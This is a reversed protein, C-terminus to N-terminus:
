EDEEQQQIAAESAKLDDQLKNHAYITMKVTENIQEKTCGEYVHITTNHGRSNTEIKMSCKSEFNNSISQLTPGLDVYPSDVVKVGAAKYNAEVEEKNTM